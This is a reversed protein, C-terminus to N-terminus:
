LTREVLGNATELYKAFEVMAKITELDLGQSAIRKIAYFTSSHSHDPHEFLDILYTLTSEQDDRSTLYLLSAIDAAKDRARRTGEEEPKIEWPVQRANEDFEPIDDFFIDSDENISDDSDSDESGDDETEYLLDDDLWSGDDELEMPEVDACVMDDTAKELPM